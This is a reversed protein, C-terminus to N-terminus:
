RVAGEKLLPCQVMLQIRDKGEGAWRSMPTDWQVGRNHIWIRAEVKDCKSSGEEHGVHKQEAVMHHSEMGSHVSSGEYSSIRWRLNGVDCDELNEGSKEAMTPLGMKRWKTRM